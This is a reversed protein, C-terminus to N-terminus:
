ILFISIHKYLLLFECNSVSITRVFTEWKNQKNTARIVFNSVYLGYMKDYCLLQLAFKRHMRQVLSWITHHFTLWIYYPNTIYHFPCCVNHYLFSVTDMDPIFNKLRIILLTWFQWLPFCSICSLVQDCM